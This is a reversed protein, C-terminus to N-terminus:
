VKYTVSVYATVEAIGEPIYEDALYEGSWYDSAWFRHMRPFRDMWFMHRGMRGPMDWGWGFSPGIEIDPYAPEEIEMAKGLSLGYASAYGEAKAKANELAKKRAEDVAKDSDSLAYGVIAADAGASRAADIAKQTRNEDSSKLKIIIQETAAYTVINRCSTTNNVTDCIMKHYTMYGKSRDPIMEEKKVGAAILSKETEEM